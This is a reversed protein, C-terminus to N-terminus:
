MLQEAPKLRKGSVIYGNCYKCHNIPREGFRKAIEVKDEITLKDDCIDIYEGEQLEIHEPGSMQVSCVYIKGDRVYPKTKGTKSDHVQHCSEFQKQLFAPSKEKLSFDGFDIWGGFHVDEGWYKNVRYPINAEELIREFESKIISLEAGYDDLIFLIGDKKERVIRKAAALLDNDPLITCNTIIRIEECRGAAIYHTYINDVLYGLDPHLLTEGGELDIHSMYDYIEFLVSIDRMINEKSFNVKRNQHPTRTLCHKCQLTCITNVVIIGFDIVSKATNDAIQM